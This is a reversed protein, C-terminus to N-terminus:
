ATERRYLWTTMATLGVTMAVLVALGPLITDWVWGEIVIVRLAALVYEVPNITVAIKFWGSLMDKPMFATTLFIFPFFFVFSAQTAQASKTQLAIMLGLSSWAIGFLAAMSIVAAVGLAGGKFSVGLAFAVLVIVLAQSLARTGAMLLSGFLISFRNIPALLLKDFYGSLIDTFMAFGADSGSFVVAQVLIMAVLFADYDDTPFGPLGPVRRFAAGFVLFLFLSIFLPPIVLAPQTVWIKLNRMYIYYTERLTGM